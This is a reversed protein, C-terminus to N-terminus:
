LPAPPPRRRSCQLRRARIREPAGAVAERLVGRWERRVRRASGQTSVTHYCQLRTPQQCAASNPLPNASPKRASRSTSIHLARWTMLLTRCGSMPMGRENRWYARVGCAVSRSVVCSVVRVRCACSVCVVRCSVCRVRCAHPTHPRAPVVHQTRLRQDLPEHIPVQMRQGVGDRAEELELAVADEDVPGAALHTDGRTRHHRTHTHTHTHTHM